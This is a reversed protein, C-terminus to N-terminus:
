EEDEVKLIRLSKWLKKFLHWDKKGFRSIWFAYKELDEEQFVFHGSFSDFCLFNLASKM